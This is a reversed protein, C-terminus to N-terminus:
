RLAFHGDAHDANLLFQHLDGLSSYEVVVAVPEDSTCIGLVQVINPDQLRMM